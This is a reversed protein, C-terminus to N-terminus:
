FYRGQADFIAAVQPFLEYRGSSGPLVGLQRVNYMAVFHADPLNNFYCLFVAGGRLFGNLHQAGGRAMAESFQSLDEFARKRPLIQCKGVVEFRVDLIKDEFGAGALREPFARFGPAHKRLSFSKHGKKGARRTCTFGHGCLHDGSLEFQIQKANIEGGDDAFVDALGGLVNVLDECLGPV